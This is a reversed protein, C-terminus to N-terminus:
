EYSKLEKLLTAANMFKKTPKEAANKLARRVFEPRYKGEADRGIMGIVASRLWRVEALVDKVVSKRQKVATNMRIFFLM